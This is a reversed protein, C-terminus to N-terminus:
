GYATEMYGGAFEVEVGKRALKNLALIGTLRSLFVEESDLM